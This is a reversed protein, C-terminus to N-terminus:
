NGKGIWSKLVDQVSMSIALDAHCLCRKSFAVRSFWLNLSIALSIVWEAISTVWTLWDDFNQNISRHKNYMSVQLSINQNQTCFNLRKPNTKTKLARHSFIKYSHNIHPFKRFLICLISDKNPNTSTERVQINQVMIM